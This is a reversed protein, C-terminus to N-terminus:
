ITLYLCRGIKVKDKIVEELEKAMYQKITKPEDENLFYEQHEFVNDSYYNQLKGKVIFNQQQATKSGFEKEVEKRIQDVVDSSVEHQYLFRPKLGLYTVALNNAGERLIQTKVDTLESETILEVVSGGLGCITNKLCNHQYVGFVSNKTAVFANLNGIVINEQLKGVLQKRKDNLVSDINSSSFDQEQNVITKIFNTSFELFESTRAVFDTECNIEALAAVKNNTYAVIVGQKTQNGMKKEAQALGREKLYQIAKEFNGDTSELAKKCDNIPSGSAERLQKILTISINTYIKRFM